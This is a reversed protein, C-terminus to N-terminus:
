RLIVSFRQEKPHEGLTNVALEGTEANWRFPIGDLPHTSWESHAKLFAPVDATAVHQHKLQFALYVLRQYAAIDFVRLSYPDNQPVALKVLIKGIPNYLFAPSFHPENQALWERDAKRNLIFQSPDSYGLAVSQAARAASMNETANFKFFHAQFATWKRNSRSSPATSFENPATITKYVAATVRFESAFANGIRYGRPDFPL